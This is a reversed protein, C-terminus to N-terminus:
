SLSTEGAALDEEEDLLKNLMTQVSVRFNRQKRPPLKELDHILSQFFLLNSNDETVFPTGKYIRSSNFYMMPEAFQESETKNRKGLPAADGAGSDVLSGSQLSYNEEELEDVMFESEIKVQPYQPVFEENKGGNESSDTMISTRPARHQGM